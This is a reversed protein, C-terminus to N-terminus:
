PSAEAHQEIFKASREFIIDRDYDLTAVHYSRELWVLEKEASGITELILSSNGPHVVHAQRSTFILVPTSISPLKQQASQGLQIASWSAKTSVKAYGLENRSPDAVDNFVGKLLLPVRGL